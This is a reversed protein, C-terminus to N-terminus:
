SLLNSYNVGETSCPMHQAQPYKEHLVERPRLSERDNTVLFCVQNKEAINKEKPFAVMM